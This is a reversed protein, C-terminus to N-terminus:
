PMPEGRIAAAIDSCAGNHVAWMGTGELFGGSLSHAEAIKACREREGAKADRIVDMILDDAEGPTLEWLEGDAARIRDRVERASERWQESM